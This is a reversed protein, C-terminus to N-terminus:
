KGTNVYQVCDGQNKFLSGNARVQTKWGGNKCAGITAPVPVVDSLGDLAVIAAPLQSALDFAPTAAWANTNIRYVSTAPYNDGYWSVAFLTGDKAFEWGDIMGISTVVSDGTGVQTFPTHMIDPSTFVLSGQTGDSAYGWATAYWLGNRYDLGCDPYDGVFAGRVAGVVDGGADLLIELAYGRLTSNSSANEVAFLRGDRVDLANIQSFGQGLFAAVSTDSLVAGSVRDIKAIKFDHTDMLGPMVDYTNHAAYLFRGSDALGSIWMWRDGEFTFTTGIAGASADLKFIIPGPGSAGVGWDPSGTAWLEQADASGCALVFGVVIALIWFKRM